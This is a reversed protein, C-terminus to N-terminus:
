SRVIWWRVGPEIGSPDPVFQQATLAPRHLYGRCPPLGGLMLEGSVGVPSPRHNRDMVLVRSNAIPRGIPVVAPEGAQPCPWATVEIAAETPGYLDHLQCDLRRNFAGVLSPTLAEGSAIVRRLSRCAEIEPQLLFAHLMSPVFHAITVGERRILEALYGPDRHGDPRAIVLRAGTVLPVFLEWVSVDFSVPTKQLMRDGPGVGHEDRMWLLRNVVPRHANM